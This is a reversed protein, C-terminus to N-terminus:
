AGVYNHSMTEILQEIYLRFPELADPVYGTELKEILRRTLKRGAAKRERNSPMHGWKTHNSRSISPYGAFYWGNIRDVAKQSTSQGCAVLAWANFAVTYVSAPTLCDTSMNVAELIPTALMAAREKDACELARFSALARATEGLFQRVEDALLTVGVRTLARASHGYELIMEAAIVDGIQSPLKGSPENPAGVWQRRTDATTNHKDVAKQGRPNKGYQRAMFATGKTPLHRVDYGESVAWLQFQRRTKLDFNHYSPEIIFVGEKGYHKLVEDITRFALPAAGRTKAVVPKTRGDGDIGVYMNTM